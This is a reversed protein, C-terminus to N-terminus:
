LAELKALFQDAYAEAAESCIAINLPLIHSATVKILGMQALREVNAAIASVDLGCEAILDNLQEKSMPDLWMSYGLIRRRIERDGAEIDDLVQELSPQNTLTEVPAELPPKRSKHDAVIREFQDIVADDFEHDQSSLKCIKRLRHPSLEMAMNLLDNRCWARIEIGPHKERLDGLLVNCTTWLERQNFVFVWKLMRNGFHKVAGHFDENIKKATDAPNPKEPGYCQFVTQETVHYGDCKHDGHRGQPKWSEFDEGWREKALEIFFDEFGQMTKERLLDAIM